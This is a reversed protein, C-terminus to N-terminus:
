NNCVKGRSSLFSLIYATFLTFLQLFPSGKWRWLTPEQRVSLFSNDSSVCMSVFCSVKNPLPVQASLQLILFGLLTAKGCPKCDWTKHHHPQNRPQRQSVGRVWSGEQHCEFQEALSSELWFSEPLNTPCISQPRREGKSREWINRTTPLKNQM